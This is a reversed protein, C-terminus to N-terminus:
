MIPHMSIMVHQDQNRGRHDGRIYLYIKLSYVKSGRLHPTCKARQTTFTVFYLPLIISVNMSGLLASEVANINKESNVAFAKLINPIGSFSPLYEEHRVKVTNIMKM